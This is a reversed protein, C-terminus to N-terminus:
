EIYGLDRLRDALEREVAPPSPCTGPVPASVEALPDDPLVLSDSWPKGNMESMAAVGTMALVSAGADPLNTAEFRGPRIQPGAALCIGMPAHAGAMSTGRAGTMEETRLRRIGARELGGRSSAGAYTCGEPENLDVILDPLRDAYPGDAVDARRYCRRVVSAGDIPDRMARLDAELESLIGDADEPAVTGRPERGALNLWFSPFYNLEESYVTTASWDIGGLRTASEVFDVAPGLARFLAAQWRSPVLGLAVRKAISFVRTGPSAGAFRLRDCDALWRNWFIARDSTASSGHDSLLVITADEGAASILQALAADLRRYVSELADSPGGSRHRPSNEYCFQRFQHSVTDSEGFHVMFADFDDTELLDAVIRTRLDISELMEDLARRHWGPDIKAQSPGDNALGGFRARISAALEPPSSTRKAGAAGLPTDFGAVQVGNLSEAPYTAPVAYSGVRHGAESMLRFVTPLARYTSNIFRVGYGSRVTFDTVGHRDPSAATLFSTWAPFTVAPRTSEIERVAGRRALADYAPLKGAARLPEVLDFSAGDWAVVLLV